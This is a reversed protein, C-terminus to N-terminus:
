GSMTSLIFSGYIHDDNGQTVNKKVGCLSTCMRLFFPLVPNYSHSLPLPLLPNTPPFSSSLDADTSFLFICQAVISVKRNIAQRRKLFLLM